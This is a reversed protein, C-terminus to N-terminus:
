GVFNLLKKTIDYLCLYKTEPDPVAPLPTKFIYKLFRRSTNDNEIIKFIEVIVVSDCFPRGHFRFVKIRLLLIM